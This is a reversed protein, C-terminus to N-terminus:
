QSALPDYVMREAKIEERTIDLVMYTRFFFSFDKPRRISGPNLLRIGNVTQDCSVHSHGFFVADCGEKKAANILATPDSRDLPNLYGNGHVILVRHGEFEEVRSWPYQHDFDTNGRVCIFDKVESAPIELDGCHVFADADPYTNRLFDLCKRDGHSDSVLIVKM